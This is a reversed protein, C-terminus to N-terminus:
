STATRRSRRRSVGWALMAVASWALGSTGPDTSACGSCSPPLPGEETVPKPNVTVQFTCHSANGAADQGTVTVTTTGLEFVSGSPQSYGLTPASVADTAVAAAYEVRTGKVSTATAVVNAPCTLAPGTTDRVTLTFTCTSANGAADEASVRVQTEGLPFDAGSPHSYTVRSASTVADSVVAAPYDVRTATASAAEVIRPLPCSLAPAVTDRVTVTFTCAATNGAADTATIRVPTEGLAFRSGPPASSTMTVAPGSVADFPAATSYTVNAGTADEAEVVVDPACGVMPPTTDRVTVTFVCSSANGAADTATVTVPTQGLPFGNGSAHSYRVTAPGSVTDMASVAPYEVSAGMAGTAEAVVAVPCTLAPATTDVVIVSFTCTSANGAADKATVEVQTEGLAFGSGSAHSYTVAPTATVADSAQVAPYDVRTDTAGTAEVVLPQPCSMEPAVTDRVTVTFGCTARRGREDRAMATVRTAGMPFVSGSAQSYTVSLAGTGTAAAPPYPVSAGEGSVAEAFVDEPCTIAPPATETVTVPFTCSSANGAVDTATVTVVTTGVPFTTGSAQSYAVTASSVADSATAAPYEVTAGDDGTALASVDAPCVLDPATTDRVTVQFSCAASNGAADRATVTVNTAGLPFVSGSPHSYSLAPSAPSDDSATASPFEVAAGQPGTASAVVSTPCTVTPPTVDVVHRAHWLEAGHTADSGQFYLTDGKLVFGTPRYSGTGPMALFLQTGEATGDSQWIESGVSSGSFASFILADGIVKLGQPSSGAAGPRIDKVRVTGAETGDTVWLERGSLGDEAGFFVRGQYPTLESVYSHAAGPAIDKVRVTGAETGDSKWLERGYSVDEATFYLTGGVVLFNDPFSFPSGPNIDKVRVTGAETGDSKWLEFSSTPDTAIFFLTGAVDAFRIPDSGAAGPWIDKVRVTGASTGDTKWLELGSTGDNAAFYLVGGVNGFAPVSQTISGTAGARIDKVRVTGTETGDTKWLEKGSVGDDAAFYLTRGVRTLVVDQLNLSGTAGPRIDKVRVTGASTGDTKWLEAGGAADEAAFYLTDEVRVFGTPSASAPGPNIDKLLVTGAATGDTKWLERGHVGNIATFLLTGNLDMMSAPFSNRPTTHINRLLVTGAETGDSMWLERGYVGDDAAFYLFGNRQVLSSPASGIAGPWIDKVRVTGAATGDTKWLEKGSVGDDAVFFLTSGVATLSALSPSATGPLIDRVRVTGADTGDTKWLERGSVGDDALFYVTNGVATLSSPSSGLNGPRIDKVRVTGAPTGDTKWLEDGTSADSAIFYLTGNVDLFGSPHSGGAGPWIDRVLQTGAATGDTKWLEFGSTGNDGKFFISGNSVTLLPPIYPPVFSGSGPNFDQILATGAETGDSRWLEFGLNTTSAVFVLTGNLNTLWSSARAGPYTYLQVATTGWDFGNSKWLRDTGAEDTATFYLTGNMPTLWSPNSHANPTGVAAERYINEVLVTGASTGDTKWLERGFWGDDASFFVTNGVATFSVPGASPLSSISKLRVTGAATGDSKWPQGGILFETAEFYLTGNVNTLTTPNSDSDGPWIDALLEAVPPTGGTGLLRSARTDVSGAAEPADGCGAATLVVVLSIILCQAQVGGRRQEHMGM